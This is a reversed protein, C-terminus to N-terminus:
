SEHTSGLLPSATRALMPEGDLVIPSRVTPITGGQAEPCPLDVVMGRHKAQPHAFAEAVTNISGVPVGVDELAAILEEVFSGARVDAAAATLAWRAAFAALRGSPPSVTSSVVISM